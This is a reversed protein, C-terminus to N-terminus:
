IYGREPAPASLFTAYHAFFLFVLEGRGQPVQSLDGLGQPLVVRGPIYNVKVIHPQICHAVFIHDLKEQISTCVRLAAILPNGRYLAHPNCRIFSTSAAAPAAPAPPWPLGRSRSAVPPQPLGRPAFNLGKLFSHALSAAPLRSTLLIEPSYGM